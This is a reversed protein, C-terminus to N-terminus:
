DHRDDDARDPNALRLVVPEVSVGGSGHSVSVCQAPEEILVVSNRQIKAKTAPASIGTCAADFAANLRTIPPLTGNAASVSNRTAAAAVARTVNNAPCPQGSTAVSRM